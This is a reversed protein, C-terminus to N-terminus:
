LNKQQGGTLENDFAVLTCGLEELRESIEEVKGRGIYMAPSPTERKQIFTEVVEGGLTEVLRGLEDLSNQVDDETDDPLQVGVM